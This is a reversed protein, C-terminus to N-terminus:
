LKKLHLMPEFAKTDLYRLLNNNLFLATLNTLGAFTGAHLEQINNSYLFLKELSQLNAFSGAPITEIYNQGLHLEKLSTLQSFEDGNLQFHFRPNFYCFFFVPTFSFIGLSFLLTFICFFFSRLSNLYQSLMKM